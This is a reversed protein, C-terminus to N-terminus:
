TTGNRRIGNLQEDCFVPVTVGLSSLLTHASFVFRINFRFPPLAVFAVHYGLRCDRVVQIRTNWCGRVQALDGSNIKKKQTIIRFSAYRSFRQAATPLVRPVHSYSHFLALAHTLFVPKTSLCLPLISIMTNSPNSFSRAWRHCFLVPCKPYCYFNRRLLLVSFATM